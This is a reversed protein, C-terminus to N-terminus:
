QRTLQLSACPNFSPRKDIYPRPRMVQPWFWSEKMGVFFREWVRRRSVTTLVSRLREPPEAIPEGVHLAPQVVGRQLMSVRM